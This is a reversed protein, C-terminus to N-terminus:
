STRAILTSSDFKISMNPKVRQQEIQTQLLNNKLVNEQQSLINDHMQKNMAYDIIAM